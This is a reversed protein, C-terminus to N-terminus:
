AKTRLKPISVTRDGVSGEDHRVIKGWRKGQKAYKIWAFPFEGEFSNTSADIFYEGVCIMTSDALFFTEERARTMDLQFQNCPHFNKIRRIKTSSKKRRDFFYIQKSSCSEGVALHNQDNNIPRQTSFPEALSSLEIEFDELM